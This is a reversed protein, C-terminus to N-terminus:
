SWPVSVEALLPLISRLWWGVRSSGSQLDASRWYNDARRVELAWVGDPDVIVQELRHQSPISWRVWRDRGDWTRLERSGDDFSLEVEVPGVMEGRRALDVDVTWGSDQQGDSSSPRPEWSSGSWDFGEAANGGYQHVALVSWDAEADSRLAQDFFWGHDEGSVEALVTCLDEGTPHRHRFREVYARLARALVERGLLGELTRLSLAAKTYSARFYDDRRRFLWAPQDVLLPSDTRALQVREAAWLAGPPPGPAFGDAIIAEMAALETYTGLGEDLWAEEAENSGLLGYFYQHGYEHVTISEIWPVWSLPPHAFLASAGTTILTPYEMGFAEEATPPPSVVTLQPYPYPGYHLGYWAIALRASRLMRERLSTQSRPLLLRLHIPPLELEAFSLALLSQARELWAAPVDRDPEFEAEVVEMLTEPAACWAFDHVRDARYVVREHSSDGGTLAPREVEVGTAGVVWGAPVVMVVRYSGFDAYFESSAHFQHCNWGAEPRGNVGADEFVGLKPFWQAVMHFQGAYGTRAIIRPLQAEFGLLLQVSAGPEVAAPLRLKAVTFDNANGDDPRVFELGPLLDVGDDTALETVRTWGWESDARRLGRLTRHGLEGMFTTESSAFANLYLHLWVEGTSSASTNTWRVRETGTIYHRSPELDVEIEYEVVREAASVCIAAGLLLWTTSVAVARGM